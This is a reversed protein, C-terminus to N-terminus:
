HNADSAAALVPGAKGKGARTIRPRAAHLPRQWPTKQPRFNGGEAARRREIYADLSITLFLRRRGATFTEIEDRRALGYLSSLKIGLYAAATTASM